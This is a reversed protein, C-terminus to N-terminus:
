ETVIAARATVLDAIENTIKEQRVKNYILTLEYIFSKANDTANRMAVMRAAQESAEAQLIADRIQNELYSPLLSEFVTESDPEVLFAGEPSVSGESEQPAHDISLPLISKIKPQQKLISVFDNYVIDVGDVAGSLFQEAILQTIAPVANVFPLHESFDALVHGDMASIFGAGKLGVTVWDHPKATHYHALVERFLVANLGGCLGKNTAILVVLRKGSTSKKRALLPHSSADVRSGLGMVMERIKDAYLKGSEAYSIAKKMKSASVLEMAQTIQAISRASKIRNKILRLNQM